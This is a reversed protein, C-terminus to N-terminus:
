RFTENNEMTALTHRMGSYFPLTITKVVSRVDERFPYELVYYGLLSRINELFIEPARINFSFLHQVDSPRRKQRQEINM